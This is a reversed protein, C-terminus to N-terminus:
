VYVHVNMNQKEKIIELNKALDSWYSHGKTFVVQEVQELLEPFHRRIIDRTNQWSQDSQASFSLGYVWIEDAVPILRELLAPADTVGPIIPCLLSGTKVGAAKVQRLGEIRRSTEITKAEFLRYTHDDNFAVSVSVAAREMAQLIDLDRVVLDSKTLITASFGRQQLLELVKRTQLCYAECPQYPDSHYGLYMTQPPISELQRGLREIIDAHMQVEKSWDTEAQPLVYCYYCYHECGVYTDVQYNIGELSCPTLIPRDECLTVQM